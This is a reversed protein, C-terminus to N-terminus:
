PKCRKCPEYGQDIAEDRSAFAVKNSEKMDDVSSCNSIHFKKSNSNGIYPASSIDTEELSMGEASSKDKECAFSLHEGDSTCIITGQEDTRYISSGVAQLRALVAEVPHGYANDSGVSIVSYEPRVAEIFAESSSTNSGHHGVKLLTSSLEYGSSLLDKEVPIESDGMFLFSTSGYEIRVVLSTDNVEDYQYAPSLFQVSAAGVTFSDGVSPLVFSDANAEAYKKFNQFAESVDDTVPSYVTGVSCANLAAALGGVHDDHAHTAIMYDIHGLQMTNVLYSYILSSDGASGGDIMLSEGDCILLAADGQGVDIFHIQLSSEAGAASVLALLLAISLVWYMLRKM